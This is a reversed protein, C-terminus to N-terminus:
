AAAQNDSAAFVERLRAIVFSPDTSQCIESRVADINDPAADDVYGALHKRAVRLGKAEGYFDLMDRYHQVATAAKVEPSLPEPKPRGEIAAEIDLLKWPAGILGRGIMVGDCGSQSLAALADDATLIDGNVFVPVSVAAKTAAVTAWDAEGKYIQMRTRGHVTIMQAGRAVSGAAIEPANLTDHDWGLRMKVTVPVSVAGVVAEVIKMALEPERMLASGGQGNTVKRAPCGFNIDIIKAGADEVAKAGEAMWHPDRGVLQIVFPDLEAGGEARALNEPDGRMLGEGAVMESVVMGPQFRQLIRRFPLDTVGSMPAVLVRSKLQVSLPSEPKGIHLLNSM